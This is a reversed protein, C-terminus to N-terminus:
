RNRLLSILASAFSCFHLSAKFCASSAKAEAWSSLAADSESNCAARAAAVGAGGGGSCGWPSDPKVKDESSM